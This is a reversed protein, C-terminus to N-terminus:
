FKSQNDNSRFFSGESQFWLSTPPIRMFLITLIFNFSFKLASNYWGSCSEYMRKMTSFFVNAFILVSLSIYIVDAFSLVRLFEFELNLYTFHSLLFDKKSVFFLFEKSSIFGREQQQKQEALM